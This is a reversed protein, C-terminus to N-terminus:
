TSENKEFLNTYLDSPIHVLMYTGVKEKYQNEAELLRQKLEELQKELLTAHQDKSELADLSQTLSAQRELEKKTDLEKQLIYDSLCCLDSIVNLLRYSVSSQYIDFSVQYCM